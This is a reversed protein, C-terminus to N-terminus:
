YQTILQSSESNIIKIRTKLRVMWVALTIFLVAVLALGGSIMYTIGATNCLLSCRGNTEDVQWGAPCAMVKGYGLYCVVYEECPLSAHRYYYARDSLGTAHYM